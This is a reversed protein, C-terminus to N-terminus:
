IKTLFYSYIAKGMITKQEGDGASEQTNITGLNEIKIIDLKFDAVTKIDTDLINQVRYIYNLMDQTEKKGNYKSGTVYELTIKYGEKTKDEIVEVDVDGLIIAPFDVENNADQLTYEGLQGFILTIAQMLENLPM